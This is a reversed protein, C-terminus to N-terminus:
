AASNSVHLIYVAQAAEDVEYMVRVPGEHLRYFGSEGWPVAAAPRPDAALARIARRARAFVAHDEDRLSSLGATAAERYIVTLGM